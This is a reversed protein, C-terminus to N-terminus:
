NNNDDKNNNDNKNNEKKDKVDDNFKIGKIDQLFNSTEIYYWLQSVLTHWNVCSIPCLFTM